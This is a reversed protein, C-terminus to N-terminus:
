RMGLMERINAESRASIKQDRLNSLVIEFFQKGDEDPADAPDPDHLKHYIPTLDKSDAVSELASITGQTFSHLDKLFAAVVSEVEQETKQTFSLAAGSFQDVANGFSQAFDTDSKGRWDDWVQAGIAGIGGGFFGAAFGLVYDWVSNRTMIAHYRSHFEQLQRFHNQIVVLDQRHAQVARRLQQRLSEGEKAPDELWRHQVFQTVKPWVALLESTYGKILEPGVATIGDLSEDLMPAANTLDVQQMAEQVLRAIDHRPTGDVVQNIFSLFNHIQINVPNLRVVVRMAEAWFLQVDASDDRLQSIMRRNAIPDVRGATTGNASVAVVSTTKPPPPPARFLGKITGAQVWDTLGDQWVLDTRDLTGAITRRQLESYSLPGETINHRLVHWEADAM